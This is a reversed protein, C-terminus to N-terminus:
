AARLIYYVGDAEELKGCVKESRGATYAKLAPKWLEPVSCFKFYMHQVPVSPYRIKSRRLCSHVSK